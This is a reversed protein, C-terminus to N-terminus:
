IPIAFVLKLHVSSIFIRIYYYTGHKQILQIIEPNQLRDKTVNLEFGNPNKKYRSVHTKFVAIFCYVSIEMEM